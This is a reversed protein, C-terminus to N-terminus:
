LTSNAEGEPSRDLACISANSSVHCQFSVASSARSATSFPGFECAAIISLAIRAASPALSM